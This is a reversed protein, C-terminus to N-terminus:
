GFSRTQTNVCSRDHDKKKVELHVDMNGGVSVLQHLKNNSKDTITVDEDVLNIYPGLSDATHVNEQLQTQNNFIFM